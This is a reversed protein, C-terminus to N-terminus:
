TISPFAVEEAGGGASGTVVPSEWLGFRGGGGEPARIMALM